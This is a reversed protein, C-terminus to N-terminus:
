ANTDKRVYGFPAIFFQRDDDKDFIPVGKTICFKYKRELITPRVRFYSSGSRDLKSAQDETDKCFFQDDKDSDSDSDYDSDEDLKRKKLNVGRIPQRDGLEFTSRSVVPPDTNIIGSPDIVCDEERFWYRAWDKTNVIEEKELDTSNFWDASNLVIQAMQEFNLVKQAEKSLSFGRIVTKFHSVRREAYPPISGDENRFCLELAYNKPGGSVFASCYIEKMEGEVEVPELENTMDGLAEGRPLCSQTAKKIYIVSDTDYYLVRDGLKRIGKTYLFCRAHATTFCAHVISGKVDAKKMEQRVKNQTILVNQNLLCFNKEILSADNVWKRFTGADTVIQTTKGKHPDKGLFGWLSNMFLKAVQYLSKDKKVKSPDLEVGNLERFERLYQEKKEDDVAWYPYGKAQAKLKFFTQMYEKFYVDTTKEYHWVEVFRDIKYGMEVALYLEPTTWCGNLSREEESHMCSDVEFNGECACTRCLPFMLKECNDSDVISAPLVPHWLDQPPLVFCKAVGFYAHPSYDFLEKIVIPHGVPYQCKSMVTPYLSTVDDYCIEEGPETCLHYLKRNNTRGGRLSERPRMPTSEFSNLHLGLEDVSSQIEEMERREAESSWDCGSLLRDWDCEWMIKLEFGAEVLDKERQVTKKYLEEMSESNVPSLEDKEFCKPCGHFICGYFELATNSAKHFGDLKYTKVSHGYSTFNPPRKKMKRERALKAYYLRNARKLATGQSANREKVLKEAVRAIWNKKNESLQTHFDSDKTGARKPLKEQRLVHVKKEGGGLGNGAYVLEYGYHIANEYALWQRAKVSQSENLYGNEGVVGIQLNDTGDPNEKDDSSPMFKLRWAQNAMSALSCNGGGPFVGTLEYVLTSFKEMGFMLLDVDDNCYAIIERWFNWVYGERRLGAHWNKFEDTDRIKSDFYSRDPVPGEYDENEKRNFDHPFWGKKVPVNFTHSFNGLAMPLFMRSDLFFLNSGIKIRKVTNGSVILKPKAGLKSRKVMEELLFHLDFRGANHAWVNAKVGRNLLSDNAFFFFDALETIASDGKFVHTKRETGLHPQLFDVLDEEYKKVVAANVVFVDKGDCDKDVRTELDFYYNRITKRDEDIQEKQKATVKQVHCLHDGVLRDFKLGCTYCKRSFCIHKSNKGLKYADKLYGEKDKIFEGNKCKLDVHCYNCARVELCVNTKYAPSLGDVLHNAYCIENFFDRKCESCRISQIKECNSIVKCQSCMARTCQHKCKSSIMRKCVSCWFSDTLCNFFGPMNKIIVYHRLVLGINIQKEQEPNLSFLVNNGHDIDILTVAYDGFVRHNETVINKLEQVSLIKDEPWQSFGSLGSKTMLHRAEREYKKRLRDSRKVRSPVPIEFGEAHRAALILSVPGCYGPQLNSPPSWCSKNRASFQKLTTYLKKRIKDRVNLSHVGGGAFPVVEITFTLSEDFDFQENSNLVGVVQDFFVEGYGFDQVTMLTSQVSRHLFSSNMTVQLFDRPDTNLSIWRHLQMFLSVIINNRAETLSDADVANRFGRLDPGEFLEPQIQWTTSEINFQRNRQRSVLRVRPDAM